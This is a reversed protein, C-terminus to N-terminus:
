VTFLCVKGLFEVFGTHFPLVNERGGEGGSARHTRDKSHQAPAESDQLADCPEWDGNYTAILLCGLCGTNIKRVCYDVVVEYRLTSLEM